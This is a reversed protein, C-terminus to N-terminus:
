YNISIGNIFVVVRRLTPFNARINQKFLAVGEDWPLATRGSAFFAEVDMTLDVYLTRKQEVCLTARTGPVFLMRYGNTLPGLLLEDVFLQVDGQVPNDALIRVEKRTRTGEFGAFYFVRRSGPRKPMFIVLTVAFLVTMVLVALVRSRHARKTTKAKKMKAIAM